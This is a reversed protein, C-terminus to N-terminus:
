SWMLRWISYFYFCSKVQKILVEKWSNVNCYRHDCYADFVKFHCYVKKVQKVKGVSLLVSDIIVLLM